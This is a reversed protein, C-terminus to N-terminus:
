RNWKNTFLVLIFGYGCSTKQFTELDRLFGFTRAEIIENLNEDQNLNVWRNKLDPHDYNVAYTITTKGQNPMLVIM